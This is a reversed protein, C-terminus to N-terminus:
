VPTIVPKGNVPMSVKETPITGQDGGIPGPTIIINATITPSDADPVNPVFTCVKVQGEHAHLYNSLSGTTTWDQAFEIDATWVSPTPFQWISTPTGGNFTVTKVSPTFAASSVATSFDDSDITLTYDILIFPAAAVSTM